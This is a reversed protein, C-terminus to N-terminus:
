RPRKRRRRCDLSCGNWWSMSPSSSGLWQHSPASVPPCRATSPGYERRAYLRLYLVAPLLNNTYLVYVFVLDNRTRESCSDCLVGCYLVTCHLMNAYLITGAHPLRDHGQLITGRAAPHRHADQRHGRPDDRLVSRGSRVLGIVHEGVDYRSKGYLYSVGTPVPLCLLWHTYVMCYTHILILYSICWTMCARSEAPHSRTTCLCSSIRYVANRKNAPLVDLHPRLLPDEASARPVMWHLVWRYRCYTSHISPIQLVQLIYTQVYTSTALVTNTRPILISYSYEFLSVIGEDTAVKIVALFFNPYLGAMIRDTLVM